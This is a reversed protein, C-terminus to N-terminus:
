VAQQLFVVVSPRRRRIVQTLLKKASIANVTTAGHKKQPRETPRALPRKKIRCRNREITINEKTATLGSVTIMVYNRYAARIRFISFTIYVNVTYLFIDYDQPRFRVLINNIMILFFSFSLRPDGTSRNNFCNYLQM